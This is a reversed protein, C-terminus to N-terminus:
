NCLGSHTADTFIRTLEPVACAVTEPRHWSLLQTQVLLLGITTHENLTKLRIKKQHAKREVQMAEGLDGLVTAEVEYNVIIARDEPDLEIAGSKVKRKMHKPEAM